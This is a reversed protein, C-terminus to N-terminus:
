MFTWLEVPGTELVWCIEEIDLHEKFAESASNATSSEELFGRDWWSVSSSITLFKPFHNEYKVYYVKQLDHWPLFAGNNM